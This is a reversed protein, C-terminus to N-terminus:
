ITQDADKELDDKSVFKYEVNLHSKTQKRSRGRKRKIKIENNKLLAHKRSKERSKFMRWDKSITENIYILKMRDDNILYKNFSSKLLKLVYINLIKKRVVEYPEYWDIKFKKFKKTWILIMEDSAFIENKVKM